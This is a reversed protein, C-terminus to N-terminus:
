FETLQVWFDDGFFAIKGGRRFSLMLSRAVSACFPRNKIWVSSSLLDTSAYPPLAIAQVTSVESRAESKVAEWIPDGAAASDLLGRTPSSGMVYIPFM